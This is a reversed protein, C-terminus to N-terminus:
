SPQERRMLLGSAGALAANIAGSMVAIAIWPFIFYRDGGSFAWSVGLFAPALLGSAAGWATLRRSNITSMGGRMGRIAILASFGVGSIFGWVGPMLLYILLKWAPPAVDNYHRAEYFQAYAFPSMLLCWIAAWLIGLSLAARLRRFLSM